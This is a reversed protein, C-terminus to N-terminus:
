DTPKQKAKTNEYTGQLKALEAAVNVEEAM